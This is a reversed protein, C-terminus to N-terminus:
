YFFVLCARGQWVLHQGWFCVRCTYLHKSCSIPPPLQKFHEVCFDCTSRSWPIGDAVKAWYPSRPFPQEKSIKGKRVKMLPKWVAHDQFSTRLQQVSRSLSHLCRCLIILILKVLLQFKCKEFVSSPMECDSTSYVEPIAVSMILEVVESCKTPKGPESRPKFTLM